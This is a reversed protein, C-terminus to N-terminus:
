APTLTTLFDYLVDQPVDRSIFAEGIGRTLIFTAQGSEVKKDQAMHDILTNATIDERGVDAVRSLLGMNQLHANVRTVDQGHCLGMKHSLGFALSLGIAVAEGHRLDNGFGTAAELAHGFTHGLNLLARAGQEREDQAVIDAKAQVARTVAYIRDQTNGASLAPGHTELWDFFPPDAILAIKLIEAYGALVDRRPLTDLLSVDSLVLRPQHFAGVLNKGQGTNIGTKGGVSSDVQALLTTPIQVFDVGRRLIASAFGTLDGIVGGGLACICDNREVNLDLLDGLLNELHHFSKTAEGAPLIVTGTTIGAAKLSATLTHLHLPAVTDDTVIVSFPRKLLPRLVTGAQELLNAGIHIDYSRAALDVTITSTEEGAKAEGSM